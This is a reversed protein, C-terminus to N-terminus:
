TIIQYLYICSCKTLLKTYLAKSTQESVHMRIHLEQSEDYVRVDMLDDFWLLCGSGGNRIDLNAYATCSCNKKCAMECEGLTMSQNYWSNNTDPFKM